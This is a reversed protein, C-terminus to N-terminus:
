PFNQGHLPSFLLFWVAWSTSGPLSLGVHEEQTRYHKLWPLKLYSRMEAPPKLDGLLGPSVITCLNGARVAPFFYDAVLMARGEKNEM